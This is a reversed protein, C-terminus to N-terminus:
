NPNTKYADVFEEKITDIVYALGDEKSLNIKFTKNRLEKLDEPENDFIRELTRYLKRDSYINEINYV